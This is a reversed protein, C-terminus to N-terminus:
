AAKASPDKTGDGFVAQADVVLWRLARYKLRRHLDLLAAQLEVTPVVMGIM